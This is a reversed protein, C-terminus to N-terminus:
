EQQGNKKRNKSYWEKFNQEPLTPMERQLGWINLKNYILKRPSYKFILRIVKGLNMYLRGSRFVKGNMKMLGKKFKDPHKKMIIQRWKFLQSHIDIKVPCVDSCSGCLTSAFPLTSYKKLDINPSLIAGIPGPIVSGYSHGGSRRYIPCTNLCAGCRICMLSKRFDEKGLLDSRGNDVIVIHMEQGSSPKFFHSSYSTISQGNASRGLLRLFVGLHEMKPIIKEIGMSAIHIPALHVGMDANGENTCVVFGGSESIAFNVGTLAADANIFKDRLDQRAINTLYQPNGNGPKTGLSKQFLLDIEEKKKHIAPATIHSPAEKALQIIREGLDTDIVEIGHQELYPNLQCEETLMSKSKVLMKVRKEQLITKVIRNHENGDIAWHVQIGNNIANREFEELYIDLQSLVNLKIQSATDRLAEWNKIKNVGLDRKHRMHWVAKDHWDVREEDLNFQKAAKSHNIM